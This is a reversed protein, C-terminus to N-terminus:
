STKEGLRCFEAEGHWVYYGHCLDDTVVAFFRGGVTEYLEANLETGKVEEPWDFPADTAKRIPRIVAKM